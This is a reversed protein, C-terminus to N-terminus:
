IIDEINMQGPLQDDFTEYYFKVPKINEKILGYKVALRYNFNKKLNDMMTHSLNNRFDELSFTSKYFNCQRCAPMYNETSNLEDQSLFKRCDNKYVSVVHDVQMDKYELKCGCYACHGGYKKYVMERVKKPIAKRAM